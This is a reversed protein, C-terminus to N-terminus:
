RQARAAATEDFPKSEPSKLEYSKMKEGLARALFHLRVLYAFVGAWTILAVALIYVTDPQM